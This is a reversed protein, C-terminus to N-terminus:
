VDVAGDPAVSRTELETVIARCRRTTHEVFDGSPTSVWGGDAQPRARLGTPLPGREPEADLVVDLYAGTSLRVRTKLVDRGCGVCPTLRDRILTTTM